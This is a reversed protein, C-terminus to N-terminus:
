VTPTASPRRKADALAIQVRISTADALVREIGRQVEPGNPVVEAAVDQGSARDEVTISVNDDIAEVAINWGRGRIVNYPAEFANNIETTMLVRHGFPRLYQTVEVTM